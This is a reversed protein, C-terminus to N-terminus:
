WGYNEGTLQYLARNHPRYYAELYERIDPTIATKNKGSNHTKLDEIAYTADVGIFKFIDRLTTGPDAFFKESNLILMDQM